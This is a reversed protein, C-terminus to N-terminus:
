KRLWKFLYATGLDLLFYSIATLAYFAKTQGETMERKEQV